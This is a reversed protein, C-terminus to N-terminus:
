QEAEKKACGFCMKFGEKIGKTSSGLQGAYRYEVWTHSDYGCQFCSAYTLNPYFRQGKRLNLDSRNM